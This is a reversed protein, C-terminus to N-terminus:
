RNEQSVSISVETPEEEFGTYEEMIEQKTEIYKQQLSKSGDLQNFYRTPIKNYVWACQTNIDM